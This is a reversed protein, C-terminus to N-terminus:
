SADSLELHEIDEKLPVFKDQNYLNYRLFKSLSLIMKEAEVPQIFVTYRLTELVNFIFHNFQNRIMKFEAQRQLEAMNKNIRDTIWRKVMTSSTNRQWLISNM